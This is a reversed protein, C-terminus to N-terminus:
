KRGLGAQASPEYQARGRDVIMVWNAKQNAVTM